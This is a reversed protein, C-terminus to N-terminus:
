LIMRKLFPLGRAQILLQFPELIGMCIKENLLDILKSIHSKPIPIPRLNWPMHPMTFIGVDLRM